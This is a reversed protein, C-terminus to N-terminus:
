KLPNEELRRLTRTTTQDIDFTFEKMFADLITLKGAVHMTQTNNILRGAAPDFHITGEAKDIKVNGKTVKVGGTADKALELKWDRSVTIEEGDKGKNGKYTYEADGKLTGWPLTLTEARKWTTASKEPLFGFISNLEEKFADEPMRARVEKENDKNGGTLKQILDDYGDITKSTVKGTPTITFRFTAGKLQNAFRSRVGLTPDDPKSSTVKVGEITQEVSYGDGAKKVVFSSVTTFKSSSTTAKDGVTVTQKTDTVAEIYFKEGDKFKWELAARAGAPLVAALLLGAVITVRLSM